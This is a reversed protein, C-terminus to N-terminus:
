GPYLLGHQQCLQPISEPQFYHGYREGLAPLDPLEAVSVAEAAIM